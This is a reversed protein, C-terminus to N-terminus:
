AGVQEAVTRAVIEAVGGAPYPVVVHIPRNPFNSQAQVVADIGLLMAAVGAALGLIQMTRM